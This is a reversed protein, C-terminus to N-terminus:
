LLLSSLLLLLLLFLYRHYFFFEMNWKDRGSLRAKLSLLISSAFCNFEVKLIFLSFPPLFHILSHIFSDSETCLHFWNSDSIVRRDILHEISLFIAFDIHPKQKVKRISAKWKKVRGEIYKDQINNKKETNRTIEPL